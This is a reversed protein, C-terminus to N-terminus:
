GRKSMNSAMGDCCGGGKKGTMGAHIHASGSIGIFVGTTVFAVSSISAAV